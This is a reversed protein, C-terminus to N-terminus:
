RDNLTFVNRTAYVLGKINTDIMQDWDDLNAEDAGELGLALGANNCLVSIQNFNPPLNEIAKKVAQRDSIDFSLPLSLEGLEKALEELREGRRGTIITQWGKDNFLKATARGFGSTAGTIFITKPLISNM